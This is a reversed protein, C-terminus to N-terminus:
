LVRLIDEPSTLVKMTTEAEIIDRARRFDEDFSAIYTCRLHRAILIHLIDSIGLKLYAYASPEQWAQNLTLEFDVIDVQLLGGLGHCDAFSRGVWLDNWLYELGSHKKRGGIQKIPEDRRLELIRKLYDGIQKKSKKQIFYVSAAESAYQKFTSEAHWIILELLALPTVVASL